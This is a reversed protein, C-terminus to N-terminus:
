LIPPGPLPPDLTIGGSTLFLMGILAEPSHFGYARRAVTRLKNNLGEVLGNTLRTKVYALIGEFHKRITRAATIFPRLKSRSAWALWDQLAERARKPQLYDLASALTEKLLYARYLRKNHQQVESLKRKQARTLDWPNKLLAFRSRKLARAEEPDDIERVMARRVKDVADSALKQVHFRDFVVEAEPVSDEIAGLYAASMDITVAKIERCREPGLEQFFSRLVEASSGPRAWIVRRRRHDVVITLYRHHKRYSFEDVGIFELGDLRGPDLRRSVVRDIIEGVTVWSIGLIETVRTKDTLQALYAAMEEFDWTFRSRHAAWPVAETRVGCSPCRVRCPAYALWLPFRGLALHRWYRLERRDYGPARRRCSGCRPKRWRPRVSIVVGREEVTVEEVFLETVSLLRRFLTTIRM